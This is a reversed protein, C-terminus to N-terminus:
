TGAMFIRLVSRPSVVSFTRIVNSPPAIPSGPREAVAPDVRAEGRAPRRGVGRLPPPISPAGPCAFLYVCTFLNGM